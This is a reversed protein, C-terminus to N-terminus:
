LQSSLPAQSAPADNFRRSWLDPFFRAEPLSRHVMSGWIRGFGSDERYLRGDDYQRAFLPAPSLVPVAHEEDPWDRRPGLPVGHHCGPLHECTGLILLLHWDRLQDVLVDLRSRTYQDPLAEL